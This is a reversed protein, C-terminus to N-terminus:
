PSETVAELRATTAKSELVMAKFAWNAHPELQRQYDTAKGLPLGNTDSLAFELKVGFRQRDALNRLTGTVYVLSSGPAKELTLTSIGFGNTQVADEPAAPKAVSVPVAPAPPLPAAAPKGRRLFIAALGAALIVAVLLGAVLRRSGKAPVGEAALATPRGCHPCEVTEGAAHAPFELRGACHRCEGKSFNDTSM